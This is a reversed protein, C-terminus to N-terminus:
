DKMPKSCFTKELRPMLFVFRLLGIAMVVIFDEMACLSDLHRRPLLATPLSDVFARLNEDVVTAGEKDVTLQM